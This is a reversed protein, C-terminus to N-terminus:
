GSCEIQEAARRRQREARPLQRRLTGDHRAQRGDLLHGAHGHQAGVLGARQREILHDDLRAGLGIRFSLGEGMIPVGVGVLRYGCARLGGM